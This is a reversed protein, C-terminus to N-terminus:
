KRRKDEGPIGRRRLEDALGLLDEVGLYVQDVHRAWFAHRQTKLYLRVAGREDTCYSVDTKNLTHRVAIARWWHYPGDIEYREIDTLLVDLRFFGFRVRIETGDLTVTPRRFMGWPILFARTLLPMRFGFTRPAQDPSAITATEAAVDKV